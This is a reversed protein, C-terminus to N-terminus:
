ADTWKQYRQFGFGNGPLILTCSQQTDSGITAMHWPWVGVTVDSCFRKWIALLDRSFLKNWGKELKSVENESPNM